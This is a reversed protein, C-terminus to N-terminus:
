NKADIYNEKAHNVLEQFKTLGRKTKKRLCSPSHVQKAWCFPERDRDAQLTLSFNYFDDEAAEDLVRLDRMTKLDAADPTTRKPPEWGWFCYNKVIWRWIKEARERDLDDNAATPPLESKGKREWGTQYKAYNHITLIGSDAVAIRRGEHEQIPNFRDPESLERLYGKVKGTTDSTIEALNAATYGVHETIKVVGDKDAMLLLRTFFGWTSNSLHAATGQLAGRYLRIYGTEYIM